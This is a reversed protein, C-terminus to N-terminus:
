HQVASWRCVQMPGHLPGRACLVRSHNSAHPVVIICAACFFLHQVAPDQLMNKGTSHNISCSACFARPIFSRVVQFLVMWGFAPFLRSLQALDKGSRVRWCVVGAPAPSSLKAIILGQLVNDKQAASICQAQASPSGCVHCYCPVGSFTSRTRAQLWKCCGSDPTDIISDAPISLALLLEHLEVSALGIVAEKEDGAISGLRALLVCLRLRCKRADDDVNNPLRHVGQSFM